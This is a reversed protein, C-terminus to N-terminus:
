IERLVTRCWKLLAKLGWWHPSRFLANRVTKDASVMDASFNVRERHRESSSYFM